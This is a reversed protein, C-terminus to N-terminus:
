YYFLICPHSDFSKVRSAKKINSNTNKSRQTLTKVKSQTLHVTSEDTLSTTYAKSNIPKEHSHNTLNPNTYDNLYSYIVEKDKKSDKPSFHFSQSTAPNRTEIDIPKLQQSQKKIKNKLFMKKLM